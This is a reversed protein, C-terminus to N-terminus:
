LEYLSNARRQLGQQGALVDLHLTSWDALLLDEDGERTYTKLFGNCSRCVDIRFDKEQELELIELKDQDLNGCLPCGTRQYSWRSRCCGCSLFRERGKNTRKLQAMTPLSGCIPCSPRGWLTDSRWEAFSVIWPRLVRELAIWSLYRVLGPHAPSSQEANDENGSVIREM